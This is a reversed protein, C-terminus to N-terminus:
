DRINLLKFLAKGHLDYVASMSYGMKAAIIHWEAQSFYRLRIVERQRADELKQVAKEICVKEKYLRSLSQTVLREYKQVKAVQLPMRDNFKRSRMEADPPASVAELIARARAAREM